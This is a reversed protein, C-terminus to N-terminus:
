LFCSLPIYDFPWASLAIEKLANHICRSQNDGLRTKHSFLNEWSRWLPTVGSQFSGCSPLLFGLGDSTFNIVKNLLEKSNDQSFILFSPFRFHFIWFSWTFFYLLTIIFYIIPQCRFLLLAALICLVCTGVDTVWVICVPYYVHYFTFVLFLSLLIIVGLWVNFSGLSWKSLLNPPPTSLRIRRVRSGSLVIFRGFDAKQQGNNRASPFLVLVQQCARNGLPLLFAVDGDIHDESGHLM